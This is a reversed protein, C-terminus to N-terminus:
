NQRISNDDDYYVKEEDEKNPDEEIIIEHADAKLTKNKKQWAPRYDEKKSKKKEKEKRAAKLEEDSRKCTEPTHSKMWKGPDCKGGNKTSCWHWKTAVGAKTKRQMIAKSKPDKPPTYIWNGGKLASKIGDSNKGGPQYTVQKGHEHNM